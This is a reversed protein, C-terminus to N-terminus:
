ERSLALATTPRASRTQKRPVLVPPMVVWKQATGGIPVGATWTSM